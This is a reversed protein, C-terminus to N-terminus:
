HCVAETAREWVHWTDCQVHCERIKLQLDCMCDKCWFVTVIKYATYCMSAKLCFHVEIDYAKHISIYLAM